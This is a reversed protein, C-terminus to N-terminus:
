KDKSWPLQIIGSVFVESDIMKGENNSLFNTLENKNTNVEEVM